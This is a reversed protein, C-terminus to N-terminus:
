GKKRLEEDIVATIQELPLGGVLPRGNVFFSPTTGVGLAAGGKMEDAVAKATKGSDLCQNFTSANLGLEAAKAKLDAVGLAQQNKFMTDHLEWFKGQEHACLSAEAAKQANQHNELPFQRFVIRVKDGYKAKVQDLTTSLERCWPCQFDSYEVITVPASAPGKAPGEAPVDLRFPDLRLEANHKKMLGDLYAKQALQANQQELFGRIQGAVQEKTAGQMQSQRALYFADIDADTVPAPKLESALQERTKGTAKVEAELLKEYLAKRLNAEILEHRNKQYQADFARIQLDGDKLLEGQTLEKGEFVAVVQGPDLAMKANHGEGPQGKAACGPLSTTALLALAL